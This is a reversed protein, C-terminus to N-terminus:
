TTVVLSGNGVTSSVYNYVQCMCVCMHLCVSLVFRFNYICDVILYLVMLICDSDNVFEIKKKLDLMLENLAHM